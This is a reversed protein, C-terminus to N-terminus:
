RSAIRIVLDDIMHDRLAINGDSVTTLQAESSNCKGIVEEAEHM